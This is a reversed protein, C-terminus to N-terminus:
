LEFLLLINQPTVEVRVWIRNLNRNPFHFTFIMRNKELDVYVNMRNNIPNSERKPVARTVTGIKFTEFKLRIVM